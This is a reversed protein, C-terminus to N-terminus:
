AGKQESDVFSAVNSLTEALVSIFQNELDFIMTFVEVDSCAEFRVEGKEGKRVM